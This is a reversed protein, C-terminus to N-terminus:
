DLDSSIVTVTLTSRTPPLGLGKLIIKMTERVGPLSPDYTITLIGEEGAPVNQPEFTVTLCEPLFNRDVDLTVPQSSVNIFRLQEVANEGAEFTVESRRLRISGMQVPWEGSIDAGSAVDVSLRLVAAPANGDQTYVFVKREFKGPHGAPNYRVSIEASAGPAVEKVTCLATACSCSSVLRKIAIAENGVNTFRYVLTKPADDENMPEAIIHRTDFSLFASDASHRPNSVQELKEKSVMRLQAAATMASAMVAICISILRYLKM